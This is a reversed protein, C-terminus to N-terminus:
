SPMIQFRERLGAAVETFVPDWDGLTAQRFLRMTPYWATKEGQLLWRWDPCTSLVVWVPVGLAGALHALATDSTIVLDLCKLVAATDMFPGSQEDLRSGLDVVLSPDSLSQLQEIGANKQLSILRMGPIEALPLFHSLPLSRQWDKPHQRNGQWNIGVKFGPLSQLERRWHEILSPDAHLYPVRNMQEPETLGLVYPLSMLPAHVDFSPPEAGIAVLQDIGPFNALIRHLAPSCELILRGAGHIAAVYRVFQLTDGLGQEAHLLITRGALPSGDWLPQPFGRPIFAKSRWRWEYEEWGRRWDGISLWAMGRNMRAEAYDPRMAIAREFAALSEDMKGQDLLAAALNNMAETNDPELEMARRCATASEDLRGLQRLANGLNCYGKAYTPYLSIVQEYIRAADAHRGLDMYCNGLNNLAKQYNPKLRVAEEFSEAAMAYQRLDNLANGLNYHTEASNPRYQLSQQYSAAAEAPRDRERLINGLNYHAEAFDPKLRLAEHIHQIAADSSGQQHLALGLLHWADHQRPEVQLVQRYIQEAQAFRGQQHHAVAMALAEAVTPM